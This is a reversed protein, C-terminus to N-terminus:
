ISVTIILSAGDPSKAEIKGGHASVVSRAISLGIGYGKIHSSRSADGRYFREFMRNQNGPSLGQATNREEIVVRRGVKHLSFQILGNEPTYKVANDALITVLQRMSKENGNLHVDSEIDTEFHLGKEESMLAFPELSDLVASSLDFDKMELKSTGEDMKALSVLDQTLGSLRHVQDHIGQTWKTKGSTMEIVDTCSEIVSLPTKIEHGANTIFQKQKEYAESIPGIARRSLLVVLIFILLIGALSILMSLILLNHAADLFRQSDAFVYIIEVGSDDALYKWSDEYGGLDKQAYLKEALDLLDAEADTDGGANGKHMANTVELAQGDSSLRVVYVHDGGRGGDDYFSRFSFFGQGEGGHERAFEQFDSLMGRREGNPGDGDRDGFKGNAPFQGDNSLVLELTNETSKDFHLFNALNLGGIIATLVVVVSFMTILIFRRRLRDIM